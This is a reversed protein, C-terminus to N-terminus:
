IKYQNPFTYNRHERICLKGINDWDARPDPGDAYEEIKVVAKYKWDMYVEEYNEYTWEKEKIEKNM